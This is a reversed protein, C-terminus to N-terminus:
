KEQAAQEYVEAGGFDKRHPEKEQLKLLARILRVKLGVDAKGDATTYLEPPLNFDRLATLIGRGTARHVFFAPTTYRTGDPATKPWQQINGCYVCYVKYCVVTAPDQPELRFFVPVSCLGPKACFQCRNADAAAPTNNEAPGFNRKYKIM